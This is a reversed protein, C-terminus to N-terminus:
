VTYVSGRLALFDDILYINLKYGTVFIAVLNVFSTNGSIKSINGSLKDPSGSIQCPYGSVQGPNGSTQSPNVSMCMCIIM